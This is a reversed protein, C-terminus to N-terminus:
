PGVVLPLPKILSNFVVLANVYNQPLYVFYYRTYGEHEFSNTIIQAFLTIPLLSIIIFWGLTLENSRQFM